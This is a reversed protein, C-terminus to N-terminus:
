DSFLRQRMVQWKEDTKRLLQIGRGEGSSYSGRVIGSWDYRYVYLAAQPMVMRWRIEDTRFIESQIRQWTDEFGKRIEDIGNMERGNSFFYRAEPHILPAVQNFDHSNTAISLSLVFKRLDSPVEVKSM